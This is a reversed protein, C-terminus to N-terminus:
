VTQRFFNEQDRQSVIVKYQRILIQSLRNNITIILKMKILRKQKM